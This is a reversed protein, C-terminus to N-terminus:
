AGGRRRPRGVLLGCLVIAAALSLLAGATVSAPRYGLEVIREGEPVPVGLFAGNVRRVPAAEGDVTARWGPYYSQQAVLWGPADRRVRLRVHGSSEDLVEVEGPATGQASPEPGTGDVVSRALPDFDPDTVAAPVEGTMGATVAPSMYRPAAGPVRFM